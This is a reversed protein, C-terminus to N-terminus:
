LAVKRVRRYGFTFALGMFVLPWLRVAFVIIATALGWGFQAAETLQTKLGPEFPTISKTNYVLKQGATEPQYLSLNITSFKVQDTLTLNDISADDAQQQHNLLAEQAEATETLKKGREDIANNMRTEHKAIRAQKLNNALLQLAADNAKILRFDLYTVLPALSKLASDLQTNPVRIIMTNQVDYYTTQLSSDASVAVTNDSNIKSTLNTYSVYGGLQRTIDEIRYTAIAVNEVKCKIDATRIFQHVSDRPDEVAGSSSLPKIRGNELSPANIVAPTLQETREAAEKRGRSCGFFLFSVIVMAAFATSTAKM